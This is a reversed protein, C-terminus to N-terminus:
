TRERNRGRLGALGVLGALGIWGWDFDNDNTAANAQYNNGTNNTGYNGIGTTDGSEATIANSEAMGAASVNNSVINFGLFTTVLLLLLKKRM